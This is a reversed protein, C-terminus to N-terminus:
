KEEQVNEDGWTAIDYEEIRKRHYEYEEIWEVYSAEENRNLYTIVGALIDRQNVTLM